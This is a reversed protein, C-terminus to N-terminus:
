RNGNHGFAKSVPVLGAMQTYIIYIVLRPSTPRFRISGSSNSYAYCRANSLISKHGWTLVGEISLVDLHAECYDVDM